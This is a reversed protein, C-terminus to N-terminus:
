RATQSKLDRVMEDEYTTNDLQPPPQCLLGIVLGAALVVAVSERQVDDTVGNSEVVPETQGEAISFIEESLRPM